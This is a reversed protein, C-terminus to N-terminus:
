FRATIWFLIALRVESCQPSIALAHGAGLAASGVLYPMATAPNMALFYALASGGVYTIAGQKAMAMACRRVAFQAEAESVGTETIAQILQDYPSAM